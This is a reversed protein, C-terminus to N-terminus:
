DSESGAAADDSDPLNARPDKDDQGSDSSAGPSGQEQLRKKRDDNAERDMKTKERSLATIISQYKAKKAKIGSLYSATQKAWDTSTFDGVKKFVGGKWM